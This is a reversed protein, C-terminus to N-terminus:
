VLSSYLELAVLHQGMFCTACYIALYLAHADISVMGFVARELEENLMFVM